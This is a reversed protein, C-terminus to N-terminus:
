AKGMARTLTIEILVRDPNPRPTREYREAYRRVADAILEPEERVVALGELTAWRRGALQCVAVRAGAEGAARVHAVKRSHRNAIVRALGAEPDYTVGVPVVHPTGDPRPTTLTCVHRERWFDLYEPDPNRPDRSM